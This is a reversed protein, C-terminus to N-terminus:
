CERRDRGGRDGVIGRLGQEDGLLDAERHRHLDVSGLKGALGLRAAYAEVDVGGFRHPAGVVVDDVGHAQAVGLRLDVAHRDLGVQVTRLRAFEADPHMAVGDEARHDTEPWLVGRRWAGKRQRREVRHQRAVEDVRGHRGGGLARAVLPILMTQQVASLRPHAQLQPEPSDTM